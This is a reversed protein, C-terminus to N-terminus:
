ESEKFMDDVNAMNFTCCMGRDTPFTKFISACNIPMGKWICRKVMASQDRKRSTVGNVDFCPLQSYWMIEFLDNYSKQLDLVEFSKLSASKKETTTNAM